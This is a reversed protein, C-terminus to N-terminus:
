QPWGGEARVRRLMMSYVTLDHITDDSPLRGQAYAGFLRGIKGLAYFSLALEHGIKRRRDPPTDKFPTTAILAEGIVDLDAAGYESIKSLLGEFDAQATEQWWKELNVVLAAM